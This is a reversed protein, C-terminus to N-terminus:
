VPHELGGPPSAELTQAEPLLNQTSPSSSSADWDTLKIPDLSLDLSPAHAGEGPPAPPTTQEEAAAGTGASLDDSAFAAGLLFPWVLFNQLGRRREPDGTAAAIPIAHSPARQHSHSSGFM